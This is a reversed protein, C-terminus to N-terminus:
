SVTGKGLAIGAWSHITKAKNGLLLAACGTLACMQIHPIKGTKEKLIGPLENYIVSLLYSKGVGGGGTLFINDGDILKKIVSLQASNLTNM